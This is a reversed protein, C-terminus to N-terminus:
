GGNPGEYDGRRWRELRKRITAEYGQDTPKYYVKSEPLYSQEVYGGPYSHVYKYGEGRGLKRAGPYSAERLHTPVEFVKGEEVDKKAQALGMYSANSKPATAVYVAAQALPIEAEPMGVFESISLAAQALILALPDANGVDEAACIAIRRAIFRPDEGAYIMKALWYLTADPDSGRMSKIFASITDYHDDGARDYRVAKKQTSEEIVELTVHIEGAGDLPTSLVAIELANLARRADGGAQAILLDFAVDDIRVKLKGLGREEDELARRIIQRMAEDSLPKLEFVQSRSILPSILYFFPNEVTAGILVVNGDEVDPLLVDQQAKNFRHIEDIFLITRQSAARLRNKARSIVDRLEAVGAMVANLREFHAKTTHAIIHALATKGSGPPGYLIISSLRDVEIMRRLLMGEALIHEQGVFEDLSVPRMRRALPAVRLDEEKVRDFLDM